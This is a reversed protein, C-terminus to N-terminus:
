VRPPTWRTENEPAFGHILATELYRTCVAGKRFFVALGVTQRCAKSHSRMIFKPLMEVCGNPSITHASIGDRPLRCCPEVRLRRRRVYSLFLEMVPVTCDWQLINLCRPNPARDTDRNQCNQCFAALCSAAVSIGEFCIGGM